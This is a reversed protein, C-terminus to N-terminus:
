VKSLQLSTSRPVLVRHHLKFSRHHVFRTCNSLKIKSERAAHPLLLSSGFCWLTRAWEVGGSTQHSDSASDSAPAPSGVRVEGWRM